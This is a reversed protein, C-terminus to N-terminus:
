KNLSVSRLYDEPKRAKEETKIQELENSISLYHM